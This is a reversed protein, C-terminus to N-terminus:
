AGPSSFVDQVASILPLLAAPSPAAQLGHPKEEEGEDAAAARAATMM